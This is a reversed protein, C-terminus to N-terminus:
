ARTLCARPRQSVVRHRFRHLLLPPQIPMTSTHMVVTAETPLEGDRFTSLVFNPPNVTFSDPGEEVKPLLESVTMHGWVRDPRDSFILVPPVDSLTLTKGDFSGSTASVVFLWNIEGDCAYLILGASNFEKVM